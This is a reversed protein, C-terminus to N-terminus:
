IQMKCMYIRGAHTTQMFERKLHMSQLIFSFVKETGIKRGGLTNKIVTVQSVGTILIQQQSSSLIIQNEKFDRLLQQNMECM